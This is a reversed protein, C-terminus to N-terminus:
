DRLFFLWILVVVGIMGSVGLNSLFQSLKGGFDVGGLSGGGDDYTQIANISDRIEELESAYESTNTTSYNAGGDWDQSNIPADSLNTDYYEGIAEIDDTGDIDDTSNFRDMDTVIESTNNVGTENVVYDLTSNNVTEIVTGNSATMEGLKLEGNSLTKENNESGADVFEAAGTVQDYSTNDQTTYYLNVYEGSTNFRNIVEGTEADVYRNGGADNDNGYAIFGDEGVQFTGKPASTSGTDWTTNWTETVTENQEDWEYAIYNFDNISDSETIIVDGVAISPNDSVSASTNTYTENEWDLQTITGDELVAYEDNILVDVADNDFGFDITSNTESDYVVESLRYSSVNDYHANATDSEFAIAGGTFNRVEELEDSSKNIDYVYVPDNDTNASVIVKENYPNISVGHNNYGTTNIVKTDVVEGEKFLYTTVADNGNVNFQSSVSYDEYVTPETTTPDVAVTDGQALSVNRTFMMGELNQSDTWNVFTVDRRDLEENYVASTDTFGTYEGSISSTTNLDPSGINLIRYMSMKFRDSTVTSDGSMERVLGTMGYLDAPEIDGNNLSVYTDNVLNSDFNNQVTTKQSEFESWSQNFESADFVSRSNQTGDQTEFSDVNYNLSINVTGHQSGTDVEVHQETFNIDSSVNGAYLQGDYIVEESQYNFIEVHPVTVNEQEGKVVVEEETYDGTPRAIYTQTEGDVSKSDVSQYVFPNDSSATYNFRQIEDNAYGANLAVHNLVNLVNVHKTRYYDAINEEATTQAETENEGSEWSEAVGARGEVFAIQTTDEQYNNFITFVEQSYQANSELNQLAVLKTVNDYKDSFDVIQYTCNFPYMAGTRERVEQCTPEYEDFTKSDAEFNVTRSESASLTINKSQKEYQNPAIRVTYSTNDSTNPLTMSYSGTTENTVKNKVETGNEDEVIVQTKLPDGDGDTVSGSIYADGSTQAAGVGVMYPLIGAVAVVLALMVIALKRPTTNTKINM